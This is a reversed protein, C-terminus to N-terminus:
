EKIEYLSHLDTEQKWFDLITAIVVGGILEAGSQECLKRAVQYTGGTAYVDDIFLFKKGLYQNSKLICLKDIGYEKQYVESCVVEEPLKGAKRMPVLGVGFHSAIEGAYLFGRAEPSIVFDFDLLEENQEITRSIGKLIERYTNADILSPTMDIFQIEEKPFDPYIEYKLEQKM